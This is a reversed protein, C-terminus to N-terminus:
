LIKGAVEHFRICPSIFDFMRGMSSVIDQM